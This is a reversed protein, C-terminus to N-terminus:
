YQLSRGDSDAEETAIQNMLVFAKRGLGRLQLVAKMRKVEAADGTGFGGTALLIVQELHKILENVEAEYTKM